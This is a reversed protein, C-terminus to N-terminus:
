AQEGTFITFFSKFEESKVIYIVQKITKLGNQKKVKEYETGTLISIIKCIDERKNKLLLPIISTIKGLGAKTKEEVSANEGVGTKAGIKRMLDDDSILDYIIPTIECIVDLIEDTNKETLCNM